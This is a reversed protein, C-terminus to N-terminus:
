SIVRMTARRDCPVGAGIRREVGDADFRLDALADDGDVALRHRALPRRLRQQHMLRAVFTSSVSADPAAVAAVVRLTSTSSM